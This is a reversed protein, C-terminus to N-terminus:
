DKAILFRRDITYAPVYRGNEYHYVLTPKASSALLAGLLPAIALPGHYFLHLRGVGPEEISKKVANRIRKAVSEWHEPEPEVYDPEALDM